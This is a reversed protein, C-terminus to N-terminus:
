HKLLVDVLVILNQLYIDGDTHLHNLLSFVHNETQLTGQAIHLLVLGASAQLHHVSVILHAAAAEQKLEAETWAPSVDALNVSSGPDLDKVTM